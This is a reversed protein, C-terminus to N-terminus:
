NNGSTVTGGSATGSVTFSGGIATNGVVTAKGSGSLTLHNSAGNLTNGVMSLMGASSVVAANSWDHFWNGNLILNGGAQNVTYGSNWFRAGIVQLNGSGLKVAYAGTGSGVFGGGIFNVGQYGTAQCDIDINCWDASCGGFHGYTTGNSTSIFQYGVNYGYCFLGECFQEDSRGFKFAVGNALIWTALNSPYGTAPWLHINRFRTIDQSNDVFIGTAIPQGFVNEILSRGIPVMIGQYPNALTMDRITQNVGTTSTVIAWPYATPTSATAPNGPWYLTFGQIGANENLAFVSGTSVGAGGILILTTGNLPAIPTGGKTYDPPGSAVGTLKVATPITFGTSALTYTGQPVIVEGGGAAGAAALAASFAASNDTGGGTVTGDAVAGYSLVNFKRVVTYASVNQSPM